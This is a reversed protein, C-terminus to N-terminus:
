ILIVRDENDRECDNMKWVKFKLTPYRQQLHAYGEAVHFRISLSTCETAEVVDLITDEMHVKAHLGVNIASVGWEELIVPHLKTIFTGNTYLIIKKGKAANCVKLVLDPRLLPEGGSICVASYKDWCIDELRTPVINRRIAPINNCCYSCRLNCDWTVLVRLTDIM